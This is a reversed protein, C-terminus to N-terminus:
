YSKPLAHVICKGQDTCTIICRQSVICSIGKWWTHEVNSEYLCHMETVRVTVCCLKCHSSLIRRGDQKSCKFRAGTSLRNSVIPTAIGDRVFSTIYYALARWDLENNSISALRLSHGAPRSINPARPSIVISGRGVLCQRPSIDANTKTVCPSATEIASNATVGNVSM